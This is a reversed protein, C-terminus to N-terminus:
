DLVLYAYDDNEPTPLLGKKVKDEFVDIDFSIDKLTTETFYRLKNL